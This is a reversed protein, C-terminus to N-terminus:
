QTSFVSATVNAGGPVQGMLAAYPSGQYSGRGQPMGGGGGFQPLGQPMQQGGQMGLNRPPRPNFGQQPPRQQGTGGRMYQQLNFAM